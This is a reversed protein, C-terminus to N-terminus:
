EISQTPPPDLVYQCPFYVNEDENIYIECLILNICFKVPGSDPLPDSPVPRAITSFNRREEEILLFESLILNM